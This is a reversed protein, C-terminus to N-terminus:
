LDGTDDATIFGNLVVLDDWADNNLDAFLSGWAWRGMGAGSAASVDTFTGAPQGRFLSNGRTMRQISSIDAAAFQHEYQRQYTIRNGASSFMNSVYIDAHGDRDYDAFSVSMGSAIDEVGSAAAVNTFRGGDNRYLCNRGFDNAV